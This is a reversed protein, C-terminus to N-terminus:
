ARLCHFDRHGSRDGGDLDKEIPFRDAHHASFGPPHVTVETRQARQGELSYGEIGLPVLSRPGPLEDIQWPRNHLTRELKLNPGAALRL